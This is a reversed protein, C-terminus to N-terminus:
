RSFWRVQTSEVLIIGRSRMIPVWLIRGVRMVIDKCDYFEVPVASAQQKM